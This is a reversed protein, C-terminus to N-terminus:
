SFCWPEVVVDGLYVNDPRTLYFLVLEAIDQPRLMRQKEAETPPTDKHSWISTAVPGPSISSIRVGSGRCEAVLTQTIALAAHKSASYPANGAGARHAATSLVNIIYGSNRQKMQPLVARTVLYTGDVNARMIRRYDALSLTEFSHPAYMSCGAANILVDIQGCAQFFAAVAREVQEPEGVDATQVFIRRGPADLKEKAAALKEASRAMLCVTDGAELLAAACAFGIGESGGTVLAVRQKPASM